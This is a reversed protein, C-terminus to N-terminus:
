SLTVPRYSYDFYFLGSEKVRLFNAVDVYNPLTASLGVIRVNNQSNEVSRITRAIIGELVPGREDALLHIEDVIILKVLDIYARDGSKRTIIDWKEPTSIIM